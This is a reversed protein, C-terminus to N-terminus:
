DPAPLRCLLIRSTPGHQRKAPGGQIYAGEIQSHGAHDLKKLSEIPGKAELADEPGEAFQDLDHEVQGGREHHHPYDVTPHAAAAHFDHKCVTTQKHEHRARTKNKRKDALFHRRTSRLAHSGVHSVGQELANIGQGIGLDVTETRWREDGTDGVIDILNLKGDSQAHTLERAPRQKRHARHDGRHGDIRLQAMM